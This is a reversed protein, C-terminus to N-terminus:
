VLAGAMVMVEKNALAIDRGARIAALTPQLGIAGVLAAVVLDSPHTAVAELGAAGVGIPVADGIRERLAEAAADDGVSVCTPSFREIQEALKEVNQGAALATVEFRDPNAAAVALTQEGVSGTSGLIALRRM